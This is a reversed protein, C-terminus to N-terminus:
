LLRQLLLMTCRVIKPMIKQKHKGDTAGIVNPINWNEM